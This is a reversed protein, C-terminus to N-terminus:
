VSNRVIQQHMNINNASAYKNISISGDLNTVASGSTITELGLGSAPRADSYLTEKFSFMIFTM